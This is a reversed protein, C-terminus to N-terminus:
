LRPRISVLVTVQVEMRGLRAVRHHGGLASGADKLTCMMAMCVVLCNPRASQILWNNEPGMSM